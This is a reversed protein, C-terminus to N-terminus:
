YHYITPDKLKTEGCSTCKFYSNNSNTFVISLSTCKPCTVNIGSTKAIHVM